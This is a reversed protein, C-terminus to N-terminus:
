QEHNGMLCIRQNCLPASSCLMEIVGFADPGRDIYDGIYVERTFEMPSRRIDEWILEHMQMLLDSRGHIAGVVYLRTDDPVAAAGASPKTLSGWLSKFFQAM